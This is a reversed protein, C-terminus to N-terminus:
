KAIEVDVAEEFANKREILEKEYKEKRKNDLSIAHDREYKKHEVADRRRVVDEVRIEIAIHIWTLIKSLVLSFDEVKDEEVEAINKKM